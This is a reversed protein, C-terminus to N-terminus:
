DKKAIIIMRGAGFPSLLIGMAQCLMLQVIQPSRAFVLAIAKSLKNEGHKSYYTISRLMDMPVIETKITITTFGIRTLVTEIGRKEFHVRHRPLDFGSWFRKFIKAEWSDLRPIKIFLMGGSLLGNHYINKLCEAYTGIHELVHRAIVIAYRKKFIHTDGFGEQLTLDYEEKAFARGAGGPEIGEASYGAKKIQALFEGRGAGLEFVSKTNNNAAKEILKLDSNYKIAQLVAAFSEKSVFAEYDDPYFSALEENDMSPFSFALGCEECRYISFDSSAGDRVFFDRGDNFLLAMRNGCSACDYNNMSSTEFGQM